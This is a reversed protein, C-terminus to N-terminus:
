AVERLGLSALARPIATNESWGSDFVVVYRGVPDAGTPDHKGKSEHLDYFWFPRGNQHENFFIRMAAWEIPSMSRSLQFYSRPTLAQPFRQSSGDPYPNVLCEWRYEHSFAKMLFFPMVTTPAAPNLNNPM